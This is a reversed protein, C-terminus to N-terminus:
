EQIKLSMESINNQPNKKYNKRIQDRSLVTEINGTNQCLYYWLSLITSMKKLWKCIYICM